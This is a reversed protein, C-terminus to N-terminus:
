LGKCFFFRERWNRKLQFCCCCCCCVCVRVCVFPCVCVSVCVRVCLCPCVCMYVCYVCRRTCYAWTRAGSCKQWLRAGQVYCTCRSPSLLWCCSRKATGPWWHLATKSNLKNCRACCHACSTAQLSSTHLPIYPKTVKKLPTRHMLAWRHLLRCNTEAVGTRQVVCHGYMACLYPLSSGYM